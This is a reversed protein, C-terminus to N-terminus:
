KKGQELAKVHEALLLSVIRKAEEDAREGNKWTALKGLDWMEQISRAVHEEAIDSIQM